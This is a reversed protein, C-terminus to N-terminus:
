AKKDIEDLGSDLIVRILHSITPYRMKHKKVIEQMRKLESEPLRVTYQKMPEDFLKNSM